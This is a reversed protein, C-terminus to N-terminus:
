DPRHDRLGVERGDLKWAPDLRGLYSLATCPVDVLYIPEDLRGRQAAPGSAIMFSNLIEPEQHGGGHGTGKGGHDSTVLILWEENASSGRARLADVVQGVHEDARQIAELYPKM